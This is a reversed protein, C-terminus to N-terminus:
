MEGRKKEHCDHSLSILPPIPSAFRHWGIESTDTLNQAKYVTTLTTNHTNKLTIETAILLRRQGLHSTLSSVNTANPPVSLAM